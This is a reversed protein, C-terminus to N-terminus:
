FTHELIEGLDTSGQPVNTGAATRDLTMGKGPGALNVAFLGLFLAITTIVEFYVIAKVGIRGMSTLSGTGAIGAVLTGFLLPAIISKILRLFINSIPSLSAAFEPAAFGIVIGAAMGIFIWATLSIRKM